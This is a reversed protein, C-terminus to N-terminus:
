LNCRQKLKNIYKEILPITRSDHFNFNDKKMIQCHKCILQMNEKDFSIEENLGWKSLISQPFIHDVTLEQKKNCIECIGCKDPRNQLEWLPSKLKGKAM